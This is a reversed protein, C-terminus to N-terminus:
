SSREVLEIRYGDPDRRSELSALPGILAALVWWRGVLWGVLVSLALAFAVGFVTSHLFDYVDQSYLDIQKQDAYFWAGFLAAYFVTLAVRIKM